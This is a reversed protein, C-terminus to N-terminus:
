DNYGGLYKISFRDGLFLISYRGFFDIM